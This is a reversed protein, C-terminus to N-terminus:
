HGKRRTSIDKSENERRSFPIRDFPKAGSNSTTKILMELQAIDGGPTLRM